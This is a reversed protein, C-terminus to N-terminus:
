RENFKICKIHANKGFTHDWFAEIRRKSQKVLALILNKELYITFHTPNPELHHKQENTPDSGNKKEEKSLRSRDVAKSIGWTAHNKFHSIYGHRVCHLPTM